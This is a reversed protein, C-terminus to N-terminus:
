LYSFYWMHLDVSTRKNMYPNNSPVINNIILVIYSDDEHSICFLLTLLVMPLSHLTCWSKLYWNKWNLGDNKAQQCNQTQVNHILHSSSILTTRNFCLLSQNNDLTMYYHVFKNYKITNYITQKSKQINLPTNVKNFFFIKHM